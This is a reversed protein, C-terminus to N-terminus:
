LYGVAQWYVEYRRTNFIFKGNLSNLTFGVNTVDKASFSVSGWEGWDRVGFTVAPICDAAFSEPFSVIKEGFLSRDGAGHWWESAFEGSVKGGMIFINTTKFAGTDYSYKARPTNERIWNLNSQVQNMKDDTLVEDDSFM